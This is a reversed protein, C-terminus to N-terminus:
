GEERYITLSSFREEHGTQGLLPVRMSRGAERSYGFEARYGERQYKEKRLRAIDFIFYERPYEKRNERRLTLLAFLQALQVPRGWLVEGKERSYALRNAIEYASLLNEFFRKAQFPRNLLANYRKRVWRAMASPEFFSKKEIKRSFVLRVQGLTQDMPLDIELRFPAIQYNPFTGEYPLGVDSLATELRAPYSGDHLETRLKEMEQRRAEMERDYLEPLPIIQDPLTSSLRDFSPFDWEKQAKDLETIIRGARMINKKLPM